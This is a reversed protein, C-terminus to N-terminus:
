VLPESLRPHFFPARPSDHRSHDATEVRLEFSPVPHADEGKADVQMSFGGFERCFIGIFGTQEGRFNGGSHGVRAMLEKLLQLRTLSSIMVCEASSVVRDPLSNGFRRRGGTTTNSAPSRPLPFVVSVLPM